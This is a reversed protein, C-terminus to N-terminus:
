KIEGKGEISHTLTSWLIYLIYTRDTQSLLELSTLITTFIFHKSFM